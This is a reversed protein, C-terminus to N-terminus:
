WGGAGYFFVAGRGPVPKKKYGAGALSPRTKTALHLPPFLILM